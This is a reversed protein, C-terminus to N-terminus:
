NLIKRLADMARHMVAKEDFIIIQEEKVRYEKKQIWVNLLREAMFGYIRKQYDDYTTLDVCVELSALVSFLWACYEDYDRKRMCFMNTFYASKQQMVTDFADLFEPTQEEIIRRVHDMDERHHMSAYQEYVTETLEMKKPLIVDADKLDDRFDREKFIHLPLGVIDKVFYRRYHCLGIYDCSLNKWAWYMATLECYYPNKDSIHDGKNDSAYQKGWETEHIRSGVCVPYYVSDKPVWHPKHVAILIKFDNGQGDSM